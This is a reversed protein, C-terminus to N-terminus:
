ARRLGEGIASSTLTPNMASHVAVLRLVLSSLWTGLVGTIIIWVIAVFYLAGFYWEQRSEPQREIRVGLAEGGAWMAWASFLGLALGLGMVSAYGALGAKAHKASAIAAAVPQTFCILLLQTWLM